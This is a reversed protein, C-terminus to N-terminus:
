ERLVSIVEEWRKALTLCSDFVARAGAVELVSNALPGTNVAICFTGAEDASKIGLPANEIVLAEHPHVKKVNCALLYPAPDPKGARVDQGTIVHKENLVGDFAKSIGVIHEENSSGTVVLMEVKSNSITKLLDIAGKQVKPPGLSSLVERKKALIREIIEDTIDPFSVERLYM